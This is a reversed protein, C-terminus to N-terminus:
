AVRIQKRMSKKQDITGMEPLVFQFVRHIRVGLSGLEAVCWKLLAPGGWNREDGVIAEISSALQARSFPEVRTWKISGDIDNKIV